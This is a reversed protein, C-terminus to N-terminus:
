KKFSYFKPVVLSDTIEINNGIRTGESSYIQFFKQREQPNFEQNYGNESHYSIVFNGNDLSWQM